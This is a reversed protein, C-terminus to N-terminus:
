KLNEKAIHLKRLGEKREESSMKHHILPTHSRAEMTAKALGILERIENPRPCYPSEDMHQSFAASVNEFSYKKLSGFWLQLTHTNPLPRNYLNYVGFMLDKFQQKSEKTDNM